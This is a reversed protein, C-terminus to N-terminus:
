GISWTAHTEFRQLWESKKGGEDLKAVHPGGKGGFLLMDGERLSQGDVCIWIGYYFVEGKVLEHPIWNVQPISNITGDRLISAYLETAYQSLLMGTEKDGYPGRKVYELTGYRGNVLPAILLGLQDKGVKGVHTGAAPGVMDYFGYLYVHKKSKSPVAQTPPLRNRNFEKDLENWWDEVIGDMEDKTPYCYGINSSM